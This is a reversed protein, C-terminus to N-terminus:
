ALTFLTMMHLSIHGVIAISNRDLSPSIELRVQCDPAPTGHLFHSARLEGVLLTHPRTRWLCLGQCRPHQTRPLSRTEERLLRPSAAPQRYMSSLQGTRPVRARPGPPEENQPRHGPVASIVTHSHSKISSFPSSKPTGHNFHVFPHIPM